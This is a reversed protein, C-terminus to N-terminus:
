IPSRPTHAACHHQGRTPASLLTATLLSYCLVCPQLVLCMAPSLKSICRMHVATSHKAPSVLASGRHQQVTSPLASYHAAETRSYHLTYQVHVSGQLSHPLPSCCSYCFQSYSHQDHPGTFPSYRSYCTAITGSCATDTSGGLGGVRRWHLARLGSGGLVPPAPDHGGRPM